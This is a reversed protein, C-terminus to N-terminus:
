LDIKSKREMRTVVADATGNTFDAQIGVHILAKKVAQVYENPQGGWDSKLKLMFQIATAKKVGSMIEQYTM